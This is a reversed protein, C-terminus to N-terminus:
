PQTITIKNGTINFKVEGTLELTHLLDSAKAFRNGIVGFTKNKLTENEYVVEVNYWRSAQLMIESLKENSFRFMGNKWAVTEQIDANVIGLKSNAQQGPKLITGNVKVSGEVLTTKSSTEDSYANVDFATGIDQITQNSTSVIFPKAANHVVEFYAEGTVIVKRENVAFTVPYTISSATNLWVKTGDSLVLPLPSIEGRATTLTNYQITQHDAGKYSIGMKPDIQISTGGQQALFGNLSKTLIIKKGNALTLTAQNRGPKVDNMAVVGTAGNADKRVKSLYAGFGLAFIISAAVAIRPWLRRTKSQHEFINALIRQQQIESLEHAAPENEFSDHLLSEVLEQHAPNALEQRLAYTERESTEGNLYREYLRRIDQDNM